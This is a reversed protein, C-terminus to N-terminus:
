HSRPKDPQSPYMANGPYFDQIFLYQWLVKFFFPDLSNCYATTGIGGLFFAVGILKYWTDAQYFIIASTIFIFTWPAVECGMLMKPKWVSKPLPVGQM